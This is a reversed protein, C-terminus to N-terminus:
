TYKNQSNQCWHMLMCCKHVNSDDNTRKDHIYRTLKRKNATEWGRRRENSNECISVEHLVFVYICLVKIVKPLCNRTYVNFNSFSVGNSEIRRLRVISSNSIYITNLQSEDVVKQLKCILLECLNVPNGEFRSILTINSQGYMCNINKTYPLYKIFLKWRFKTANVDQFIRASRSFGETKNM